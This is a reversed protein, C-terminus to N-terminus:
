NEIFRPSKTNIIRKPKGIRFSLMIEHSNRALSATSGISYDYSYGLRLFGIELGAMGAIANDPRYAAGVWYKKLLLGTLSFDVFCAQDFNTGRVGAILDFSKGLPQKYSAYGFYQQAPKLTAADDPMRAIHTVSAGLLLRQSSLEIGFGFDPDM